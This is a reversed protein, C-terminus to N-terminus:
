MKMHREVFSALKCLNILAAKLKFGNDGVNIKPGTRINTTIPAFFEHLTKDAM